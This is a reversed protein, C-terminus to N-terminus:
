KKFYQSKRVRFSEYDAFRNKKFNAFYLEECADYCDEHRSFSPLMEYFIKIFGEITQMELIHDPIM